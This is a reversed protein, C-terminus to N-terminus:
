AIAPNQFAAFGPRPVPNQFELVQWDAISDSWPRGRTFGIQTAHTGGFVNYTSGEDRQAWPRNPMSVWPVARTQNIGTITATQTTSLNPITVTGRQTSMQPIVVVSAAIYQLYDNAITQLRLATSSNLFCRSYQYVASPDITSTWNNTSFVLAKATNVPTLTVDVITDLNISSISHQVAAGDWQVVQMSVNELLSAGNTLTVSTPSAFSFNAGTNVLTSLYEACNINWSPILFSQTTDVRSITIPSAPQTASYYHQVTVGESFEMVWWNLTHTLVQGFVNRWEVRLTSANLLRVSFPNNRTFSVDYDTANTYFFITKNVNSVTGITIDKTILSGSPGTDVLASTGSFFNKLSLM